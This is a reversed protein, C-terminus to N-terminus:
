FVYILRNPDNSVESNYRNDIEDDNDEDDDEDDDDDEDEEEEKEEQEESEEEDDDEEEEEESDDDDDDDGEDEEEDDSDDDEEEEDSDGEDDEDNDDEEEEESDDDDDDNEEDPEEEYSEDDDDDDVDDEEDDDDEKTENENKDDDMFTIENIKDVTVGIITDVNMLKDYSNRMKKVLGGIRKKDKVLEAMMESSMSNKSHIRKKTINERILQNLHRYIEDLSHLQSRHEDVMKDFLEKAKVYVSLLHKNYKMNHRLTLMKKVINRKADNESSRFNRIATDNIALFDSDGFTKSKEEEIKM